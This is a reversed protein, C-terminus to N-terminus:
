LLSRQRSAKHRTTLDERIKNVVEVMRREKLRSVMLYAEDRTGRAVLIIVSGFRFRGTRGKRQINRIESPIPEYFIVYDVSPIDLGEEGISTSVLVNFRKERFDKITQAQQAQTIGEKKGVFAKAQVGGAELIDVLMKITSRYQAFVIASKDRVTTKILKVLEAAKQHEEHREYAQKAIELAKILNPNNLLSTLAKSKKERNQLSEIYAIFPYLGETTVLDYAHALNLVYIYNFFAAFRYGSSIRSITNGIELLRRKPINEFSRFPSLGKSYLKGLYENIIPSLISAITEIVPGKDVYVTLVDSGMVYPIVDLDTSSRIEINEIGLTAILQNIKRRDSGPSATLGVVQIGRLKCEDAIYTYSYKGVARHCEDFIVVGFNNLNLRGARVDNAITQPTATIVKAQLELDLRKSGRIAGTLLLIHEKPINLTNTLSQYHQESLPKTPAVILARKQKHLANAIAFIALLTKGLGTPLIVLTNDGSLIGKIINIQYARPQLTTTNVLSAYPQLEDWSSQM